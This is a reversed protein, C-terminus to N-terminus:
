CNRSKRCPLCQRLSRGRWPKRPGTACGGPPTARGRMMSAPPLPGVWGSSRPPDILVRRVCGRWCRHAILRLRGTCGSSTAVEELVADLVVRDVPM